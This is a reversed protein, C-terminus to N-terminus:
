ANCFLNASNQIYIEISHNSIQGDTTCILILSASHILIEATVFKISLIFNDRRVFDTLITAGIGQVSQIQICIGFGLGFITQRHSINDERSNWFHICFDSVVSAKHFHISPAIAIECNSEIGCKNTAHAVHLQFDTPIFLKM